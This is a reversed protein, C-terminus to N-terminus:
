LTLRFSTDIVEKILGDDASGDLCVSIWHEKNMHYAPYVGRERWLMNIIGQEAKVNFVDIMGENKIGLREKKITMAIIFWKKNEKHRFVWSNSDDKFPTEKPVNYTKLIYKELEPKNMQLEEHKISRLTINGRNKRKTL